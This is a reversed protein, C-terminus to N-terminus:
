LNIEYPIKNRTVKLTIDSVATIKDSVEFLIVVERGTHPAFTGEYTTFDNALFTQMAKAHYREGSEATYEASYVDSATMNDLTIETETPNEVYFTLALLKKGTGANISYMHNEMYSATLENGLYTVTLGFDAFTNAAAETDASNEPADAPEQSPMGEIWETDETAPTDDAIVTDAATHTYKDTDAASIYTIGDKQCNNFKSVIHASYSVILSQEEETLEYPAEGCGTFLLCGLLLLLVKNCKKQKMEMVMGKKYAIIKHVIWNM